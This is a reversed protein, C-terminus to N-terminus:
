KRKGWADMSNEGWKKKTVDHKSGAADVDINSTPLENSLQLNNELWATPEETDLYSNLFDERGLRRRWSRELSECLSRAYLIGGFDRKRGWTMMTNEGWKRKRTDVIVDDETASIAGCLRSVLRYLSTMSRDDAVHLSEVAIMGSMCVVMLVVVCARCLWLSRM